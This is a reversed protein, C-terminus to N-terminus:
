RRTLLVGYEEMFSNYLVELKMGRPISSNSDLWNNLDQRTDGFSSKPIVLTKSPKFRGDEGTIFVNFYHKNSQSGKEPQLRIINKGELLLVIDQANIEDGLQGSRIRDQRDRENWEDIQRRQEEKEKAEKAEKKEAIGRILEKNDKDLVPWQKKDGIMIAFPYYTFRKGEGSEVYPEDLRRGNVYLYKYRPEIEDRNGRRDFAIVDAQGKGKTWVIRVSKARGYSGVADMFDKTNEQTFQLPELVYTPKPKKVAENLGKRLSYENTGDKEIYGIELKFSIRGTFDKDKSEAIFTNDASVEVIKYGSAKKQAKFVRRYPFYEVAGSDQFLITVPDGIRLETPYVEQKPAPPPPPPPPLPEAVEAGIPASSVNARKRPRALAEDARARVLAQAKEEDQAKEDAIRRRAEEEAQRQQQKVEEELRQKRRSPRSVEEEEGVASRSVFAPPRQVGVPADRPPEHRQFYESRAVRESEFVRPSMRYRPSEVQYPEYEYGLEEPPPIAIPPPLFGQFRRHLIFDPDAGEVSYREEGVFERITRRPSNFAPNRPIRVQGVVYSHPAQERLTEATFYLHDEDPFEDWARLRYIDATFDEPRMFEVPADYFDPADMGEDDGFEDYMDRLDRLGRYNRGDVKGQPNWLPANRVVWAHFARYEAPTLDASKATLDDTAKPLRRYDFGRFKSENIRDANAGHKAEWRAKVAPNASQKAMLARMYNSGRSGGEPVCNPVEKGDKSKMGYQEYGDWCPKKGLGYFKGIKKLENALREDYGMKQEETEAFPLMAGGSYIQKYLAEQQKYKREAEKKDGKNLTKLADAKVKVYLKEVEDKSKLGKRKVLKDFVQASPPFYDPSYGTISQGFKARWPEYLEQILNTQRENAWDDTETQQPNARRREDNAEELAKAQAKAQEEKERAQKERTYGYREGSFMDGLDEGLNKFLSEGGIGKALEVGKDVLKDEIGSGLGIAQRGKVVADNIAMAGEQLKSPITKSFFEAIKDFFGSGVKKGYRGLGVYDKIRNADFKRLDAKLEEFGKGKLGTYRKFQAVEKSKASDLYNSLQSSDFDQGSGKKKAELGMIRMELGSRTSQSKGRMQRKLEEIQADIDEGEGRLKGITATTDTALRQFNQVYEPLEDVMQSIDQFFFNKEKETYLGQNDLLMRVFFQCNNRFSDYEFFKKDGVAKRADELMKNITLSRGQLPVDLLEVGADSLNFDQSVSPRDLKEVIYTQGDDLTALLGLHFFTDFGFKKKAKSWKGLSILDLATNFAEKLPAKYIQLKTITKDGVMRLMDTTKNDYGDLRPKFVESATDAVQGVKEKLYDYGKKFFDFFGKGSLKAYQPLLEGFVLTIDKNIKKSRFKKIFKTKPLARFRYTLKTETAKFDKKKIINEAHKLAEEKPVTRKIIVAHLAWPKDDEM